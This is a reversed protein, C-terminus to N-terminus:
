TYNLNTFFNLVRACVIRIFVHNEGTLRMVLKLNNRSYGSLVNRMSQREFDAACNASARAIIIESKTYQEFTAIPSYCKCTRIYGNGSKSNTTKARQIQFLFSCYVYIYTQPFRHVHSGPCCASKSNGQSHSTRKIVVICRISNYFYTYNIGSSSESITHM